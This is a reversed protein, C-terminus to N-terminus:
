VPKRLHLRKLGLTLQENIYNGFRTYEHRAIYKRVKNKTIRNMKYM